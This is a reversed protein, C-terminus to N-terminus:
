AWGGGGCQDPAPWAQPNVLGDPDLEARIRALLERSAQRAAAQRGGPDLSRGIAQVVAPDLGGWVRLRCGAPEARDLVLRELSRLPLGERLLGALQSWRPAALLAAGGVGAPDPQWSRDQSSPMERGQLGVAL